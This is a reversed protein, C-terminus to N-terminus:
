IHINQNKRNEDCVHNMAVSSWFQSGQPLEEPARQSSMVTALIPKRKKILHGLM